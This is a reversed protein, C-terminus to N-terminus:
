FQIQMAKKLARATEEVTPLCEDLATFQDAVAVLCSEGLDYLVVKGHTCHMTFRRFPALGGEALARRTTALLFSILGAVVEQAAKDTLASKVMIGDATMVASGKIGPAQNLKELLEEIVHSM